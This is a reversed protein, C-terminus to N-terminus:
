YSIDDETVSYGSTAGAPHIPTVNCDITEGAANTLAEVDAVRWMHGKKVAGSGKNFCQPGPCPGLTDPAQGFTAKLNGGCYVNVIPKVELTRSSYYHVMARFSEHNKPRDININEPVGPTSINDIDLRPNGCAGIRSQWTSGQPAGICVSIPSNAYGWNAVNPLDDANCNRFHCDDNNTAGNADFWTTTSNPRHVHLDLDVSGSKDWCLEFRVGPGVVHQVWTCSYTMGNSGTVEFKVTYDGSLTFTFTPNATNGGTVTFSQKIPTTTTAFLRDCPGGTVTWRWNTAGPDAYFQSGMVTVSTFPQVPAIRPDGPAPCDLQGSCCLGDDKCGDCDNDLSDCVEASPSIGGTCPGWTAFEGGQCTQTGDTCAGVNRKGPPGIFCRQVAGSPCTCDEDAKGDCDDDLGNGCIETTGCGANDAIPNACAIGVQPPACQGALDTSSLDDPAAMDPPPTVDDIVALDELSLPPREGNGGNSGNGNGGIGRRPEGCGTFGVAAVSIWALALLFMRAM